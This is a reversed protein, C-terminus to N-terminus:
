RGELEGRQDRLVRRLRKLPCPNLNNTRKRPAYGSYGQAEIVKDEAVRRWYQERLSPPPAPGPPTPQVIVTKKGM